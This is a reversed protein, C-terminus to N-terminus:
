SFSVSLEIISDENADIIEVSIRDVVTVFADNIYKTENVARQFDEDIDINGVTMHPLYDNEQLWDPFFGKLIGRYLRKHIEIIEDNGKIISLFLYNSFTKNPVIGKLTIEFPEIGSLSNLIHEKLEETKINSEFPFVLTIHPPVHRELPDYKKRIDKIIKDNEFKPFIMICRKIM